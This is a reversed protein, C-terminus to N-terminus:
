KTIPSPTRQIARSLMAQTVTAPVLMQQSARAAAKPTGQVPTEGGLQSAVAQRECQGPLFSATPTSSLKSQAPSHPSPSSLRRRLSM